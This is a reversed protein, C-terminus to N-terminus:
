GGDEFEVLKRHRYLVREMAKKRPTSPAIPGMFQNALAAMEKQTMAKDNKLRDYIAMFTGDNGLAKEFLQLYNDVLSQNPTGPVRAGRPNGAPRVTGTDPKKFTSLPSDQHKGLFELLASLDDVYARKGVLGMFPKLAKLIPVVDRVRVGSAESDLASSNSNPMLKLFDSLNNASYANLIQLLDRLLEASTQAKSATLTQAHSELAECLLKIKL